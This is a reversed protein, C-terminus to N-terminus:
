GRKRRFLGVIGAPIFLVYPLPSPIATLLAVILAKIFASQNDDGFWAKQIMFAIIGLVVAAGAAVPLLLGASAVDGSFIMTDAVITLFATTAHFGCTQSFGRAALNQRHALPYPQGYDPQAPYNEDHHYPPEWPSAEPQMADRTETNYKPTM